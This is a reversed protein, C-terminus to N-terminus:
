LNSGRRRDTPVSVSVCIQARKKKKLIELNKKILNFKQSLKLSSKSTLLRICLSLIKSITRMAVNYHCM